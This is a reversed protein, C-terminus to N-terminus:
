AHMSELLTEVTVLRLTCVAALQATQDVEFDEMEDHYRNGIQM